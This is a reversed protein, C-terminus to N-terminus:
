PLKPPGSVKIKELRKKRRRDNWYKWGWIGIATLATFYLFWLGSYDKKVSLTKNNQIINPSLLTNTTPLQTITIHINSPVNNSEVPIDFFFKQEPKIIIIENTHIQLTESKNSEITNYKPVYHVKDLQAGNHFKLSPIGSRNSQCGLLACIVLISIFYKIYSKMNYIVENRM